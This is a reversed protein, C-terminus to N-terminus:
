RQTRRKKVQIAGWNAGRKKAADESHVFKCADGRTCEGKRWAFCVGKPATSAAREQPDESHAFKCASGRECEGKRWKFCVGKLAAAAAVRTAAAAAGGEGEPAGAAAAAGEAAAGEAAASPAAHSFRCAEGRSCDGKQFAFCMGSKARSKKVVKTGEAELGADRESKSRESRAIAAALSEPDLAKRVNIKRGRLEARHAKIAVAASGHDTFDVFAVGKFKGSRKDFVLRCSTVTGHGCRAEFFASLAEETLDFPLQTCHVSPKSGDEEQQESEALGEALEAQQEATLPM